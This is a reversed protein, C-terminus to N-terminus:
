HRRARQCRVSHSPLFTITGLPFPVSSVPATYVAQSVTPLSTLAPAVRHDARMLPKVKRTEAARPSGPVDACMGAGGVARCQVMPANQGTGHGWSPPSYLFLLFESLSVSLCRPSRQTELQEMEKRTM